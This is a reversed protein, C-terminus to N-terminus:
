SSRKKRGRATKKELGLEKEIDPLDTDDTKKNKTKAHSKSQKILKDEELIQVEPPLVVNNEKAYEKLEKTFHGVLNKDKLEQIFNNSGEIKIEDLEDSSPKWTFVGKRVSILKIQRGVNFLVEEIDPFYPEYYIPIDIVVRKGTSPDILPKGLRNKDIIAGSNRGVIRFGTETTEDVITVLSDKSSRKTLNLRVSANYKLARGGPTTEPNGFCIGPKERIQNIFLVLVEYMSAYQSIKGMTKSLARALLAVTDKNSSQEAVLRPTLNAISDLVIVKINTDNSSRIIETIKDLIDEAWFIEDPKERNYAESYWLRDLNVGNLEALSEEFSHETDIWAAEYGKNQAMGCIRYALSSKGAAEEGYLEVLRGLPLGLTKKPDYGELTSLDIKSPLEGYHLAFDLPFYGTPINERSRLKAGKNLFGDLNKIAIDINNNKAKAM